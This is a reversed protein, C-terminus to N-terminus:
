PVMLQGLIFTIDKFDPQGFPWQMRFHEVNGLAEYWQWVEQLEGAEGRVGFLTIANIKLKM